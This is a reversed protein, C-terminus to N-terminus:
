EMKLLPLGFVKLHKNAKKIEDEVRIWDHNDDYIFHGTNESNSEFPAYQGLYDAAESIFEAGISDDIQLYTADNYSLCNIPLPQGEYDWMKVHGTAKGSLHNLEHEQCEGENSFSKGCVECVYNIIEKM